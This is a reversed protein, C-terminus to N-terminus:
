KVGNKVPQNKSYDWFPGHYDAVAPWDEISQFGYKAKLDSFDDSGSPGLDVTTITLHQTSANKNEEMARQILSRVSHFWVYQKAATDTAYFWQGRVTRGKRVEHAFAIVTNDAVDRYERILGTMRTTGMYRSIAESLAELFLSVNLSPDDDVQSGYMSSLLRV